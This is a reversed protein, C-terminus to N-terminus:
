YISSRSLSSLTSYWPPSFLSNEKDEDDCEYTIVTDTLISHKHICEYRRTTPAQVNELLLIKGKTEHLPVNWEYVTNGSDSCYADYGRVLDFGHVDRVYWLVFTETSDILALTYYKDVSVNGTVIPAFSTGRGEAQIRFLVNKNM